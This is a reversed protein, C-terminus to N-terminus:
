RARGPRFVSVDDYYAESQNAADWGPIGLVPVPALVRTSGLALPQAFCDAARADAQDLQSALPLGFFDRSVPLVLARATLGKYPRLAKEHIAHGFLLFRMERVVEARRRWFLAKWEFGRLLAELEPESCAVIVGSEDFLTLVDRATGRSGLDMRATGRSGLDMRATGGSGSQERALMAEYHRRNLLAKTKPFALWALANYLDHFDHHRTPVEGDRYIRVEYQQEFVRPATDGASVFRLAAGGGSAAGLAQALESLDGPEPFRDSPCLAIVPWLSEFAPNALLADRDWHVPGSIMAPAAIECRSEHIARALRTEM